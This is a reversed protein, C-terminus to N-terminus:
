IALCPIDTGFIKQWEDGALYNLNDREYDCAKEAAGLASRAKSEWADGVNVLEFTGPRSVSSNTMTTLWAFFDRCMWDYFFLSQHSYAWDRLFNSALLELHFSKMPVNCHYQWTKMMKILPRLNGNHNTDISDIASAEAFPTTLTYSGGNKTNSVIYSNSAADLLFAPVIEVNFTTFAAVVVPGDGKIDSRSFTTLLKGKVEQLLASQKNGAYREFRSYVSSPLVFYLDIDRPPRVQTGKGWSGIAFSNDIASDSGWYEQNLCKTVNAIKTFGDARQFATLEIADLFSSFRRVLYIWQSM